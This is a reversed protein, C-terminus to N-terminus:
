KAEAPTREDTREIIGPPAIPLLESRHACWGALSRTTEIEGNITIAYYQMGDEMPFRRGKIMLEAFVPVMGEVTCSRGVRSHPALLICVTGPAINM